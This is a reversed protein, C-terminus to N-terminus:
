RVTMVCTWSTPVGPRITAALDRAAQECVSQNPIGYVVTSNGGYGLALFVLAWTPM